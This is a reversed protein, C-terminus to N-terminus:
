YPGNELWYLFNTRWYGPQGNPLTKDYGKRNDRFWNQWEKFRPHAALEDDKQQQLTQRLWDKFDSSNVMLRQMNYRYERYKPFLPHKEDEATYRGARAPFCASSMDM